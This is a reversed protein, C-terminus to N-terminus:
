YYDALVLVRDRGARDTLTVMTGATGCAWEAVV